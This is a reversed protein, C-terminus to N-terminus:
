NRHFVWQVIYGSAAILPTGVLIAWNIMEYM